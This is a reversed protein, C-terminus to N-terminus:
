KDFVSLFTVFFIAVAGVVYVIMPSTVTVSNFDFNVTFYNEIKSAVGITVLVMVLPVWKKMVALIVVAAVGFAQPGEWDISKILEQISDM